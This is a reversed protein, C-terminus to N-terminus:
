VLSYPLPQTTLWVDIIVAKLVDAQWMLYWVRNMNIVKGIMLNIIEALVASVWGQKYQQATQRYRQPNLDAVESVGAQEYQHAQEVYTIISVCSCRRCCSVCFDGAWQRFM